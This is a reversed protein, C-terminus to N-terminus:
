IQEIMKKHKIRKFIIITSGIILTYVTIAVIIIKYDLSIKQNLTIPITKILEEKYYIKAEGLTEGKKTQPTITDIGDYIIKIDEKNYDNRLYHTIDNQATINITEENLHKTNLTTIIEDKSIITQYNYNKFYYEYVKKADEFHMPKDEAKSTIFILNANNQTAISALAYGADIEYGTKGGKIYPMKIDFSNLYYKITHKITKGDSLKYEFTTILKEFEQNKLGEKLLILLDTMTSYNNKNDMGIPNEFSTNNMELKKAKDNMLKVFDKENGSTLRALANACDAGSELILGYLLDYYTYSKEKDLSSGSADMELLKDYDSKKFTVQQNLDEVNELVVLATMMKTLSAISVKKNSNKEFLIKDDNLNYLIATESNIKINEANVETINIGIMVLIILLLIKIKKM